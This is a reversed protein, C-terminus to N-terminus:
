SQTHRVTDPQLQHSAEFRRWACSFANCWEAKKREAGDVRWMWTPTDTYVLPTQLRTTPGGLLYLVWFSARAPLLSFCLVLTLPWFTKGGRHCRCWRKGTDGACSGRLPFTLPWQTQQWRCHDVLSRIQSVTIDKGAWNCEERWDVPAPWYIQFVAASPWFAAKKKKIM